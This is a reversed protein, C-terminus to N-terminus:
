KIVVKASGAQRNNYSLRFMYIGPKWKVVDLELPENQQNIPKSFVCKGSFDYAELLASSWQHFVTTIRFGSNTEENIIYKPIEIIVRDTAPNPYVKLKTTEPNKFPEDIGVVFDCDPDLTDSPITDPCLSDYV